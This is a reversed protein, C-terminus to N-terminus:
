GGISWHEHDFFWYGPNGLYEIMNDLIEKHGTEMRMLFDYLKAAEKNRSSGQLKKYFAIGDREFDSAVKYAELIDTEAKTTEGIKEEANNFITKVKELNSENEFDFNFDKERFETLLDFFHTIVKKHNLEDLALQKFTEKILKNKSKESTENYFEYGDEESKIALQLASLEDTNNEM